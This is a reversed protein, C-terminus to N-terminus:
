MCLELLDKLSGSIAENKIGEVYIDFPLKYNMDRKMLMLVNSKSDYAKKM